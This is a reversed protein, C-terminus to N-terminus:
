RNQSGSAIAGQGQIQIMNIIIRMLGLSADAAAPTLMDIPRVNEIDIPPIIDPM